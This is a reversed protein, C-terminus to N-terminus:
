VASASRIGARKVRRTKRKGKGAAAQQQDQTKVEQTKPANPDPRFLFKAAWRQEFRRQLDLPISAM